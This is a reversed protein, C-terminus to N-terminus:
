NVMRRTPMDALQRAVVNTVLRRWQRQAETVHDTRVKNLGGHSCATENRRGSGEAGKQQM